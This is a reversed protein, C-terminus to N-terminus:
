SSVGSARSRLTAPLVLRSVRVALTGYRVVRHRRLRRTWRAPLAEAAAPTLLVEGPRALDEGLKSALNVELGFLDSGVDILDGFGIGYSFRVREDVPRKANTRRITQELATIARCAQAVDPVRILLSDAEVKVVVGGFRGLVPRAERVARDMVMLFHLIGDRAVRVTFDATDTYVIAERRTLEAAAKADLERRRAPGLNRRRALLAALRRTPSTSRRTIM